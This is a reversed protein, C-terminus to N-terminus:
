NMVVFLIELNDFDILPEILFKQFVESPSSTKKIIKGVILHPPLVGGLGSTLVLDNEKISFNAPVEELTMGTELYGQAVGRAQPTSSFYVNAALKQSLITEVISEKPYVEVIKGVLYKGWIVAKNLQINDNKGKNILFYNRGGESFYGKIEAPQIELTPFFKETEQWNVCLNLKQTLEEKAQLLKLNDEKLSLNEKKIEGIKLIDSIKTLGLYLNSFYRIPAYTFNLLSIKFNNALSFNPTAAEIFWFLIFISFGIFLIRKFKSDLM